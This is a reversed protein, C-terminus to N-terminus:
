STPKGFGAENLIAQGEASRVMDVFVKALEQQASAEVVAIPYVNVVKDAGDIEVQEVEDGQAKADTKYVVGADAEGSAVKGRVDTVKQEESVPTLAVGLEEALKKTAKGCPVEPACVVLKASALSADLGTVKAPNGPPTILTLTNTAFSQPQVVLNAEVAKTMTSENATALVDAPAGQEIATVLDQSGQLNLQVDVGSNAEEFLAEIKGFSEKLSAAAFVHLTGSQALTSRSMSESGTPQTTSASASAAASNGSTAPEASCAASLAAVAVLLVTKVLSSRVM